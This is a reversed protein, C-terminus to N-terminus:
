SDIIKRFAEAETLEILVGYASKPHIFAFSPNEPPIKSVVKLGKAELDKVADAVSEVRISIHHLGEGKEALVGGEFTVGEAKVVRNETQLRTFYPREKEKLATEVDSARGILGHKGKKGVGGKFIPKVFVEGNDAIMGKIADVDAEPGLVKTFPFEVLELLKRGWYLGTLKM